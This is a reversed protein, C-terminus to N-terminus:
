RPTPWTMRGIEKSCSSQAYKRFARETRKATPYLYRGRRKYPRGRGGGFEIWRAYVLGAGMTARGVNGDMYSRVSLQLAGSKIPVRGRVTAAVQDISPRIADRPQAHDINAFLRRAGSDLQRIGRIKIEVPADAM